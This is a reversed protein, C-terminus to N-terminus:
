RGFDLQHSINLNNAVNGRRSAALLGAGRNHLVAYMDVNAATSAFIKETWPVAEAVAAKLREFKKPTDVGASIQLLCSRWLILPGTGDEDKSSGCASVKGFKMRVPVSKDCPPKDTPPFSCSLTATAGTGEWEYVGNVLDVGATSVRWASKIQMEGVKSPLVDLPDLEQKSTPVPGASPTPEPPSSTNCGIAATMILLLTGYPRLPM